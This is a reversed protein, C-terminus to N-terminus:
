STWVINLLHSFYRSVAQLELHISLLYSSDEHKTFGVM